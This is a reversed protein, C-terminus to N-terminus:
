GLQHSHPHFVSCKGASRSPSCGPARPVCQSSCQPDGPLAAVAGRSLLDQHRHRTGEVTGTPKAALGPFRSKEWCLSKGIPFARLEERRGRRRPFRSCGDATPFGGKGADRRPATPSYLGAPVDRAPLQPSSLGPLVYPPNTATRATSTDMVPTGPSQWPRLFRHGPPHRAAPHPPREASSPAVLQEPQHYKVWRLARTTRRGCPRERLGTKRGEGGMIANVSPIEASGACSQAPPKGRRPQALVEDRHVGSSWRGAGGGSAAHLGNGGTGAYEGRPTQAGAGSVVTENRWLRHGESSPLFCFLNKLCCLHSSFATKGGPAPPPLSRLHTLLVAPSRKGEENNQDDSLPPFYTVNTGTGGRHPHADGPISLAAKPHATQPARLVGHPASSPSLGGAVSGGAGCSRAPSGPTGSGRPRPEPHQQCCRRSGPVRTKISASRNWYVFAWTVLPKPLAAGTQRLLLLFSFGRPAAPHLHQAERPSGPWFHTLLWRPQPPLPCLPSGPPAEGEAVM